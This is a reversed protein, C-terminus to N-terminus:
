QMEVIVLKGNDKILVLTVLEQYDLDEVYKIEYEIFYASSDYISDVHGFEKQTLSKLTVEKVEPLDDKREGILNNYMGAYVTIGAHSIFDEHYDEYVFQVGGVDTRNLKNTLTFFDALFLKGILEAYKEEDEEIVTKLETFLTKYYDTANSKVVYNYDELEDVVKPNKDNSTLKNILFFISIIVVLIATVFIMLKKVNIKRKKNMNVEM